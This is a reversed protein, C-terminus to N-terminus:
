RVRDTGTGGRDGRVGSARYPAVSRLAPVLPVPFPTRHPAGISTGDDVDGNVRYPGLFRLGLCCRFSTGDGHMRTGPRHLDDDTLVVLFTQGVGLGAQVRTDARRQAALALSPPARRVPLNGLDTILERGRPSQGVQRVLQQIDVAASM